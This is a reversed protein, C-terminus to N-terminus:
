RPGAPQNESDQRPFASATLLKPPLTSCHIGRPVIICVSGVGPLRGEAGVGIVDGPPETRGLM